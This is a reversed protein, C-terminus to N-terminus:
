KNDLYKVHDMSTCSKLIFEFRLLFGITITMVNMEYLIAVYTSVM